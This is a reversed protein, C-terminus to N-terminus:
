DCGYGGPWHWTGNERSMAFPVPALEVGDVSYRRLMMDFSVDEKVKAKVHKGTPLVVHVFEGVRAARSAKAHAVAVGDM